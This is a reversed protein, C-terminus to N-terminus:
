MYLENNLVNFTINKGNNSIAQINKISSLM